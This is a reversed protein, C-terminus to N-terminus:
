RLGQAPGILLLRTVIAATTGVVATGVIAVAIAVTIAFLIVVFLHIPEKFLHKAISAGVASCRAHLLAGRRRSQALWAAAAGGNPVDMGISEGTAVLFLAVLACAFALATMYTVIDFADAGVDIGGDRRGDMKSVDVQQAVHRRRHTQARTTRDLDVGVNVTFREHM